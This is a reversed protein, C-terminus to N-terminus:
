VGFAAGAIGESNNGVAGIVGAVRTGHGLDDFVHDNFEVFNHSAPHIAANLDVHTPDVGSDIVAVTVTPLGGQQVDWADEMGIRAFHDATQVYLPDSPVYAISGIYNPEARLVGPLSLAAQILAESTKSPDGSGDTLFAM